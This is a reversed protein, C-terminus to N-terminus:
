YKALSLKLYWSFYERRFILEVFFSGKNNTGLDRIKLYKPVLSTWNTSSNLKRTPNKSGFWDCTFTCRNPLQYKTCVYLYFHYFLSPCRLFWFTVGFTEASQHKIICIALLESSNSTCRLMVHCWLQVFSCRVIMSMKLSIFFVKWIDLLIYSIKSELQYFFIEVMFTHIYYIFM